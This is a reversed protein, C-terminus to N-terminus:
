LDGGTFLCASLGCVVGEEGAEGCPQGPLLPLPERRKGSEGVWRMLSTLVQLYKTKQVDWFTFPGLLLTFAAQFGFRHHTPAASALGCAARGPHPSPVSNVCGRGRAVRLDSLMVQSHGTAPACCFGM